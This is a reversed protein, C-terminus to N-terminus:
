VVFIGWGVCKQLSNPLPSVYGMLNCAEGRTLDLCFRSELRRECPGLKLRQSLRAALINQKLSEGTLGYGRFKPPSM